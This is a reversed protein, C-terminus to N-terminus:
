RLTALRKRPTKRMVAFLAAADEARFAPAQAYIRIRGDAADRSLAIILDPEPAAADLRITRATDASRCESLGSEEILVFDAAAPDNVIQVTLDANAADNDVRITYDAGARRTLRYDNLGVSFCPGDAATTRWAESGAIAIPAVALAAAVIVLHIGRM